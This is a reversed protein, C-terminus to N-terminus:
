PGSASGTWAPGRWPPSRRSTSAAPPKWCSRRFGSTAAGCRRPWPRPASTTSWSSTPSASWPVTSSNSRTSRSRSSRGRRPRRGTRRRRGRGIPDSQGLVGALRPPQGQHPGRRVARDSSESRRRLPRRVEGPRALRPHDQAHRPHGRDDRRGRGRVPGDHHRRRQPAPPLEPGDARVDLLQACRAPSTAIATGPEVRDGDRVLPEFWSALGFRWAVLEVVPLGPSWAPQGRWSGPRARPTRPSRRRRQDPRRRLRSTRGRAVGPRRGEPECPPLTAPARPGRRVGTRDADRRESAHKDFGPYRQAIHDAHDAM